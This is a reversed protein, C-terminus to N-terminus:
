DVDAMPTVEADTFKGKAKDGKKGKRELLAQTTRVRTLARMRVCASASAVALPTCAGGLAERPAPPRLRRQRALPAPQAPAPPARCAPLAARPCTRAKRDKDIKLKTIVVKSPDVGVNM